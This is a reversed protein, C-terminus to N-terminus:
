SCLLLRYKPMAEGSVTPRFDRIGDKIPRLGDNEILGLIAHM